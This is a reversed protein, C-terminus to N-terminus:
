MTHLYTAIFPDVIVGGKRFVRESPVSTGPISLYKRVKTALHSFYKSHIKWWLLPDSDTEECPQDFYNTIEKKIQQTWSFTEGQHAHAKNLIANLGKPKKWLM